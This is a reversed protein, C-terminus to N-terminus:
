LSEPIIIEINHKKAYEYFEAFDKINWTTLIASHTKKALVMHLADPYNNPSLEKAESKDASDVDIYIINDIEKFLKLLKDTWGMIKKFEYLAWDSVVIEYYGEIVDNMFRWAFEHYDRYKSRQKKFLNVFVNTDCYIREM